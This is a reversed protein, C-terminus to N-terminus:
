YEKIAVLVGRAFPWNSRIFREKVGTKEFSDASRLLYSITRESTSNAMFLLMLLVM